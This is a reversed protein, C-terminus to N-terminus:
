GALFTSPQGTLVGRLHLVLDAVVVAPDRDRGSDVWDHLWVQLASIVLGVAIRPRLDALAGVTRCAEIGAARPHRGQM